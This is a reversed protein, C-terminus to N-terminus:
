NFIPGLIPVTIEGFFSYLYSFLVHFSALMVLWLSTCILVVTLCWKVGM